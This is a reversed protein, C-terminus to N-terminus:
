IFSAPLRLTFVTGPGGTRPAADIRGGHREAILRVIWLSLGSSPPRRSSKSPATFPRLARAIDLESLGEGEDAVSVLALGGNSAAECVVRGGAPSCKLANTILNDLAQMLLQRDGVLAVPRDHRGVLSVERSDALPRNLAVAGDVLDGLDVLSPCFGLPDSTTRVRDLVASLVADLHHILDKAQSTCPVLRDLSRQQWCAEVLELLLGLNALPARLDHAVSNLANALAVDRAWVQSGSPAAPTGINRAATATTPGLAEATEM